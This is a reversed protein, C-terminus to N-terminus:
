GKRAYIYRRKQVSCDILSQNDFYDGKNLLWIIIAGMLCGYTFITSFISGNLAYEAFTLTLPIIYVIPVKYVLKDVLSFFLSYVFPMIFVGLAGFNAYADAITGSAANTQSENYYLSGILRGVDIDYPVSVGIKRLPALISQMLYLKPNQEFFDMWFFNNRSQDFFVRKTVYTNLFHSIEGFFKMNISFSIIGFLIIGCLLMPYKRIDSDRKIFTAGLMSLVAIFIWTKTGTISFSFVIGLVCILFILYKRSKISKIIGIPLIINVALPLFSEFVKAIGNERSAMRLNYVESFDLTLDIGGHYYISYGICILSFLIFILSSKLCIKDQLPSKISIRIIVVRYFLFMSIWFANTYFFYTYPLNMNCFAVMNPLYAMSWLVILMISSPRKLTVFSTAMFTIAFSAIYSLVYKVIDPDYTFGFIKYGETIVICYALDLLIRLMVFWFALHYHDIKEATDINLRKKM